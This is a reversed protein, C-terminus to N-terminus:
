NGGKIFENFDSQLLTSIYAPPNKISKAKCLAFYKDAKKDFVFNFHQDQEAEEVSMGRNVLITKLEEEMFNKIELLTVAQGGNNEPHDSNQSFDRQSEQSKKIENEEKGKKGKISENPNTEAETQTENPNDTAKPKGGKKGNESQRKRMENIERMRNIFSESLLKSQEQKLLGTKICTKVMEEAKEHQINLQYSVTELDEIDITYDASERMIELLCFYFGYGELGHRARLKITKPDHRANSDHSFYYADKKVM